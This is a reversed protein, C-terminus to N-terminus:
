SRVQNQDLHRQGRAQGRVQTQVLSLQGLVLVSMGVRAQGGTCVALENGVLSVGSPDM